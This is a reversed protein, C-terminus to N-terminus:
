FYNFILKIHAIIDYQHQKEYYNCTKITHLSYRPPMKIYKTLKVNIRFVTCKFTVMINPMFVYIIPPIRVTLFNYQRQKLNLSLKIQHLM